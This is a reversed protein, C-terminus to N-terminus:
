MEEKITSSSVHKSENQLKFVTDQAEAMRKAIYNNVRGTNPFPRKVQQTKFDWHKEPIVSIGFSVRSKEM